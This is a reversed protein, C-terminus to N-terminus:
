ITQPHLLAIKGNSKGWLSDKYCLAWNSYACIFRGMEKRAHSKVIQRVVSFPLKMTDSVWTFMCYRWNFHGLLKSLYVRPVSAVYKINWFRSGQAQLRLIDSTDCLVSFEKPRADHLASALCSCPTRRRQDPRRHTNISHAQASTEWGVYDLGTGLIFIHIVCYRFYYTGHRNRRGYLKCLLLLLLLLLLLNCILM